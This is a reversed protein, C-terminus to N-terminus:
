VSFSATMREIWWSSAAWPRPIYQFRVPWLGGRTPLMGGRVPSQGDIAAITEVNRGGGSPTGGATRM